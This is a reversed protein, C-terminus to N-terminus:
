RHFYKHKWAIMFAHVYIYLDISTHNINNVDVAALTLSCPKDWSLDCVYLWEHIDKNLTRSMLHGPDGAQTNSMLTPTCYTGQFFISSLTNVSRGGLYWSWMSKIAETCSWCWLRLVNVAFLTMKYLWSLILYFECPLLTIGGPRLKLQLQLIQKNFKDAAFM